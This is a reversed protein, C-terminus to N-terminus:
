SHLPSLSGLSLTELSRRKRTRNGAPGLVVQESYRWHFLERMEHLGRIAVRCCGLCSWWTWSQGPVRATGREEGPQEWQSSTGLNSRSLCPWLFEVFLLHHSWLPCRRLSALLWWACSFCQLSVACAAPGRHRVSRIFRYLLWTPLSSPTFGGWGVSGLLVLVPSKTIQKTKKQFLVFLFHHLPLFDWRPLFGEHVAAGSVSGRSGGRSLLLDGAMLQWNRAGPSMQGSTSYCCCFLVVCSAPGAGARYRPLWCAPLAAM